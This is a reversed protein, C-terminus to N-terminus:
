KSELVSHCKKDLVAMVIVMVTFTIIAGITVDSLFHAGMEMRTFAVVSTYIFPVIFCLKTKDKLKDSFFPVLMLLYSVAASATHGSPCSKIENSKEYLARFKNGNIHYWPQFVSFDDAALMARYRPRGWFIKTGEVIGVELAMVAIGAYAFLLMPKKLANPIKIYNALLMTILGIGIGFVVGFLINNEEVFMYTSIHTGLYASGGMCAVVGFLRFFPKESLKYIVAGALPLVLRAPMEGTAYFWLAFPSTPNNLAHDIKLDFLTAFVMSAFALVYFTIIEARYKKIM